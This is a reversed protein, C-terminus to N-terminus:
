YRCTIRTTICKQEVHFLFVYSICAIERTRSSSRTDTLTFNTRMFNAKLKAVYHTSDKSIDDAHDSIIYNISKSMLIRKAALLFSSDLENYLYYTPQGKGMFNKKRLLKCRIIGTEPARMFPNPVAVSPLNKATAKKPDLNNAPTTPSTVPEESPVIVDKIPSVVEESNGIEEKSPSTPVADSIAVTSEVPSKQEVDEISQSKKVSSHSRSKKVDKAITESLRKM